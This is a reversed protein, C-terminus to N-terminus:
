NKSIELINKSDQKSLNSKVGTPSTTESIDKSNKKSISKSQLINDDEDEFDSLEDMQELRKINQFNKQFLENKNVEDNNKILTEFMHDPIFKQLIKIKITIKIMLQQLKKYSFVPNNLANNFFFSRLGKLIFRMNLFGMGKIYNSSLKVRQPLLVLTREIDIMRDKDAMKDLVYKFTKYAEEKTLNLKKSSMYKVISLEDKDHEVLNSEMNSFLKNPSLKNANINSSVPDVVLKINSYNKIISPFKNKKKNRNIIHGSSSVQKFKCENSDSVMEKFGKKEKGPVVEKNEDDTMSASNNENSSINKDSDDSVGEKSSMNKTTVNDQAKKKEKVIGLKKFISDISLKKQKTTTKYEILTKRILDIVPKNILSLHEEKSKNYLEHNVYCFKWFLVLDYCLYYFLMFPRIFLTLVGMLLSALSLNSFNDYISHVLSVIYAIPLGLLGVILLIFFNFLAITIYCVKSFISNLEERKNENVILLIISLPLSLLNLPAPLLILIGYTSDWKIREYTLVLVARNESDAQDQYKQYLNDAISVVLNFMMVNTITTYALLVADGFIINKKFSGFNNVGLSNNFLEIWAKFFQNFDSNSRYFYMTFIQASVTNFCCYIIMFNLMTKFILYVIRIFPGFSRTTVLIMIVRAWACIIIISFIITDILHGTNYTNTGLINIEELPILLRKVNVLNLTVAILTFIDILSTADLKIKRKTKSLYIFFLIVQIINSYVVTSAGLNKLYFSTDNYPDLSENLLEKDKKLEVYLYIIVQFLITSILTSFSDILYRVSCNNIYESYQFSLTKSVLEKDSYVRVNEEYTEHKLNSYYIIRTIRCFQFISINKGTGYWLKNVISAVNENNLLNYFRNEAIIELASRNNMDLQTRLFFNLIDEEKMANQLNEGLSLFIEAVSQCKYAYKANLKGLKLLLEAALCCVILPYRTKSIEEEDRTLTLFTKCIKESLETNLLNPPIASLLNLCYFVHEGSRLSDVLIFQVNLIFEEDEKEEKMESSDPIDKKNSIQLVNEEIKSEKSASKLSSPEIEKSVQKEEKSLTFPLKNKESKNFSSQKNIKDHDSNNEIDEDLLALKNQNPAKTLSREKSKTHIKNIIPSNDVIAKSNENIKPENQNNDHSSIKLNSDLKLNSLSSGADLQNNNVNNSSGSKNKLRVGYYSSNLSQKDERRDTIIKSGPQEKTDKKNNENSDLQFGSNIEKEIVKGQVKVEVENHIEIDSDKRSSNIISKNRENKQFTDHSQDLISKREEIIKSLSQKSSPLSKSNKIANDLMKKEEKISQEYIEFDSESKSSVLKLFDEKELKQKEIELADIKMKKQQLAMHQILLFYKDDTPPSISLFKKCQPYETLRLALRFYKKILALKMYSEKANLITIAHKLVEIAIDENNSLCIEFVKQTILGDTELSKNIIFFVHENKSFKFCIDLLSIFTKIPPLSLEQAIEDFKKSSKDSIPKGLAKAKKYDEIQAKLGSAFEPDHSLQITSTYMNRKNSAQLQDYFMIWTQYTDIEDFNLVIKKWIDGEMMFLFADEKIKLLFEIGEFFQRDITSKIIKRILWIQDLQLDSFSAFANMKGFYIFPELEKNEKFIMKFYNNFKVLLSKAKEKLGFLNLFFFDTEVDITIANEINLRVFADIHQNLISTDLGIKIIEILVCFFFNNRRTYYVKLGYAEAETSKFNPPNMYEFFNFDPFEKIVQILDLVGGVRKYLTTFKEIRNQFTYTELFYNVMLNISNEIKNFNFNFLKEKKKMKTNNALATSVIRNMTLKTKIASQNKETSTQRLNTGRVNKKIVTQENDSM